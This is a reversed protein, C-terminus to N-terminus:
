RAGHRRQDAAFLGAGSHQRHRGVSLAAVAGAALILVQCRQEIQGFRLAFGCPNDGGCADGVGRWGGQIRVARLTVPFTIVCECLFGALVAATIDSLLQQIVLLLRM